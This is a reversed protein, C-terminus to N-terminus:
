SKWKNIPAGLPWFTRGYFNNLFSAGAGYLTLLSIALEAYAAVAHPAHGGIGWADLALGLLLIDILVMDVFLFLNASSAAITGFCAFIFYAFFGFGIASADVGAALGPGFTGAKIMWSMGVASWFFGFACFITGGFINKHCYDLLGALLQAFSGCFLAWPLVWAADSVIGLKQASAVMTVVALGFLGLPTPDAVALQVHQTSNNTTM